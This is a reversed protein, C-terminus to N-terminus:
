FPASRRDSEYNPSFLLSHLISFSSHLIFFFPNRTGPEQNKTRPEQNKTKRAQNKTRPEQNKTSPEQNKTRPEQNKSPIPELASLVLGWLHPISNRNRRIPKQGSPRQFSTEIRNREPNEVDRERNHELVWGPSFLDSSM